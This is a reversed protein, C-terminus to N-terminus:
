IANEPLALIINFFHSVPLLVAPIVVALALPRIGLYLNGSFTNVNKIPTWVPSELKPIIALPWFIVEYIM